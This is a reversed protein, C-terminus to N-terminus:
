SLNDLYRDYLTLMGGAEAPVNQLPPDDYLGATWDAAIDRAVGRTIRVDAMKGNFCRFTPQDDWWQRGIYLQRAIGSTMNSPLSSTTSTSSGNIFMEGSTGQRTIAVHNWGTVTGVTGSLYKTGAGAWFSYESNSLHVVFYDDTSTGAALDHDILGPYNSNTIDSKAWFEITFDDTGFKFDGSSTTERLWDNTGDFDLVGQTTGYPGTTSLSATSVSTFDNGETSLDTVSSGATVGSGSILLDVDNWYEDGPTGSSGSPANTPFSADPPDFPGTYRAVGKTIRIDTMYGHFRSIAASTYSRFGLEINTAPTFSNTTSDWSSGEQTGDLFIRAINNEVTLAVHYWTSVSLSTTGIIRDGNLNQVLKPGSGTNQIYLIFSDNSTSRADLLVPWTSASTTISESADIYIWAEITFDDNGFAVNADNTITLKKAVDSNFSLFDTAYPHSGPDTTTTSVDSNPNTVTAGGSKLNNTPSSGDLLLTVDDWHDDGAAAAPAAGLYGRTRLLPATATWYEDGYGPPVGVLGGSLLRANRNRRYM